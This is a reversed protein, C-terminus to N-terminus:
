MHACHSNESTVSVSITGSCGGPTAGGCGLQICLNLSISDPPLWSEM